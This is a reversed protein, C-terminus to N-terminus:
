YEPWTIIFMDYFLEIKANSILSCFSFKEYLNVDQMCYVMFIHLNLLEDTVSYICSQLSLM